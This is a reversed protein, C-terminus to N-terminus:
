LPKENQVVYYMGGDHELCKFQDSLGLLSESAGLLLFGQPSLLNFCEEIIKKKLPDSFYIIVNRLFIIDFKGLSSFSDLLNFKQFLVKKKISDNIEWHHGKHIFFKERIEDSLGRQISLPDYCGRSAQTIALPSIDTATIEFHDPQVNQLFQSYRHIVMAISYPEQGTSCAASWIRIRSREGTKIKETLKPLLVDGLITFPHRDRFWLTEKTTIADIIKDRLEPQFNRKILLYFDSFNKCGMETILHSLRTEILYEKEAGLTIGCIEEVYDRLLKFENPRVRHVM